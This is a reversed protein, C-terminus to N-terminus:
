NGLSFSCISGNKEFIIWLKCRILVFNKEKGFIWCLTRGRKGITECSWPLLKSGFVVNNDLISTIIVARKAKRDELSSRMPITRKSFNNIFDFFYFFFASLLDHDGSDVESSSSRLIRSICIFAM